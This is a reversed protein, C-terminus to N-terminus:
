PKQTTIDGKQIATILASAEKMTLDKSHEKGFAMMTYAKIQEPKLGRERVQAGLRKKQAETILELAEPLTEQAATPELLEPIIGKSTWNYFIEATELIEAEGVTRNMNYNVANTLANQREISTQRLHFTAFDSSKDQQVAETATSREVKVVNFYEKGDKVIKEFSLAVTSGEKCLDYGPINDFVRKHTKEYHIDRYKDSQDVKTITIVKM